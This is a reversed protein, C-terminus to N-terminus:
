DEDDFSPDGSMEMDVDAPLPRRRESLKGRIRGEEQAHM